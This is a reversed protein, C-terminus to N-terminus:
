PINFAIHAVEGRLADIVVFLDSPSIFTTVFTIMVSARLFNLFYVLVRPKASAMM